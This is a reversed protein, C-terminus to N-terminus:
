SVGLIQTYNTFDQSHSFNNFQGGLSWVYHVKAQGWFLIFLDTM